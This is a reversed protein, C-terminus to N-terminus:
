AGPDEIAGEKIVRRGIGLIPHYGSARSDFMTPVM